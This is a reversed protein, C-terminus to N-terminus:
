EVQANLSDIAINLRYHLEERESTTIFDSRQTTRILGTRTSIKIRVTQKYQDVAGLCLDFWINKIFM